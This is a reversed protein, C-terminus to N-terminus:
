EQQGRATLAPRIVAIDTLGWPSDGVLKDLLPLPGRDRKLSVAETVVLSAPLAQRFAEFAHRHTFLVVTRPRHHMDVILQNVGKSRVRDFDDRGFCYAVSDCNRPYTVVTTAPDAVFKEVV